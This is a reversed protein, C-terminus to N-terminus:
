EGELSWDRRGQEHSWRRVGGKHGCEAECKVGLSQQGM